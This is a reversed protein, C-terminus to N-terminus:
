QSGGLYRAVQDLDGWIPRAVPPIPQADVPGTARQAVPEPPCPISLPPCQALAKASPSKRDVPRQGLLEDERLLRWVGPAAAVVGLERRVHAITTWHFHAAASERELDGVSRPGFRLADLLWQAATIGRKTLPPEELPLLTDEEAPALDEVLTLPYVLAREIRVGEARLLDAFVHLRCFPISERLSWMAYSNHLRCLVNWTEERYTCTGTLWCVFGDRVLEAMEM